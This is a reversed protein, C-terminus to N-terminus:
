FDPLDEVEGTGNRIQNNRTQRYLSRVSAYYDLSTRELDDLTEINRARLDVFDVGWHGAQWLYKERWQAYTLPNFV